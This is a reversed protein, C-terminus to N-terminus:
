VICRCGANVKAAHCTWHFLLASVPRGLSAHVADARTIEPWLTTGRGVRRMILMLQQCFTRLLCGFAAPRRCREAHCGRREPENRCLFGRQGISVSSSVGLQCQLQQLRGAGLTSRLCHFRLKGRSATRQTGAAPQAAPGAATGTACIGGPGQLCPEPDARSSM